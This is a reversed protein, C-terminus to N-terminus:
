GHRIMSGISGMMGMEAYSAGEGRKVPSIPSVPERSPDKNADDVDLGRQWDKAGEEGDGESERGDDKVVEIKLEADKSFVRLGVVCVANWPDKGFEDSEDPRQPTDRTSGSFVMCDRVDPAVNEPESDSPCDLEDDWSLDDDSIDSLTLTGGETMSPRHVRIGPMGWSASHIPVTPHGITLTDRRHTYPSGPRSSISRSVPRTERRMSGGTSHRTPPTGPRQEPTDVRKLSEGTFDARPGNIGNGNIAIGLGPIQEPEQFKFEEMKKEIKSNEATAAAAERAQEEAREAMKRMAKEEKRMNIKISRLKNKKHQTVRAAHMKMAQDKRKKRREEQAKEKKDVELERFQGKAHALDYSLGISLLKERRFQCTKAIVEEVTLDQHYRKGTIKLLVTYDGAELELETSVSRKM